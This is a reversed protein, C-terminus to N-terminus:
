RAPFRARMDAIFAAVTLLRCGEPLDYGAHLAAPVILQVGAEMMESLQARSMQPQLTLLHKRKVRKGENLIQRWRDKCTTKLALVVLEDAPHRKNEYAAKGPLLIDPRVKGDIAPQADYAIGAATFLQEVHAELSHGARSKRRNTISEAVSLFEDVSRFPQTVAAHCLKEEVARFVAFEAEMGALLVADAGAKLVQPTVEAVAKRGLAAMTKGDPFADIDAAAQKAFADYCSAPPEQAACPLLFCLLILILRLLM